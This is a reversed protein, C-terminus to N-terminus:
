KGICFSSFIEGLLDDSSVEGTLESLATQALRLEEAALELASKLHPAAAHVHGRAAELAALHRRRASFAGAAEAGSGAFSKIHQLLGDIGAGTLASIALAPEPYAEIADILDVKNLLVVLKADPPLAQRAAGLASDLGQRIDAVWLVLDARKISAQARKVGEQEIADTSARLGATDILEVPIGGLILPRHLADRTTGPIESVIAADAGALRNLLSSKGANPEGAIAVTLGDNLVLGRAASDALQAVRAEIAAARNALDDAADRDIEEEPFDLWAECMVRLETLIKQVENVQDAFRGDLSRGAAQAAARSGSSILDAIAEAQTLDLKGNLFARLSFEGPKASRAGHQQLTELLWDVVVPGGHCQLEIVDEGTFSEPGPFSLVIGRDILQGSSDRLSRYLARRPQLGPGAIREALALANPGSV